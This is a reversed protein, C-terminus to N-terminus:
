IPSIYRRESAGEPIKNPAADTIQTQLLTAHLISSSKLSQAVFKPKERDLIAAFSATILLGVEQKSSSMFHTFGQMSQAM